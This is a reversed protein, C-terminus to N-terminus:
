PKNESQKIFCKYFLSEVRDPHPTIYHSVSYVPDFTFLLFKVGYRNSEERLFIARYLFFIGGCGNAILDRMNDDYGGVGNNPITLTVTYESIEILSGLGLVVLLTLFRTLGNIPLGKM